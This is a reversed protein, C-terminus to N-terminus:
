LSNHIVQNVGISGLLHFDFKFVQSFQGRRGKSMFDALEINNM